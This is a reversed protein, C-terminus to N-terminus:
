PRPRGSGPGGSRCTRIATKVMGLETRKAHLLFDNWSKLGDVVAAAAVCEQPALTTIGRSALADDIVRQGAYPDAPYNRAYAKDRMQVADRLSQANATDFALWKQVISGDIGRRACERAYARLVIGARVIAEAQLEPPTMCSTDRKPKAAAPPPAAAAPANPRAAPPQGGAQARCDAVNLALFM